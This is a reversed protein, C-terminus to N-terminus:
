DVRHGMYHHCYFRSFLWAFLCSETVIVWAMTRPYGCDLSLPISAHVAFTVFQVIQFLTVYKKWWLNPRLSSPLAALGYYTYMVAHVASNLFPFMASQGTIGNNLNLWVTLVALAHHSVHLYSIHGNKKLLVFFVTDLLEAIKTFMYLWLHHLFPLGNSSNDTGECFLSYPPLGEVGVATGRLYTIQLTAVSFYVSVIVTLANYTLVLPKVAVPRRNKMLRPGLHLAFYLYGAAIWLVVAPSGMLPWNRVRPDGGSSFMNWLSVDIQQATAVQLSRM